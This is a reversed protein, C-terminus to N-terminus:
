GAVPDLRMDVQLFLVFVISGWSLVLIIAGVSKSIDNVAYFM